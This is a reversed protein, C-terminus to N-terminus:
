TGAAPPTDSDLGQMLTKDALLEGYTVFKPYDRKQYLLWFIHLVVKLEILNDITPLLTSFFLNPLPTFQM